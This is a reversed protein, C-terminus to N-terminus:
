PVSQGNRQRPHDSVTGWSMVEDDRMRMPQLNFYVEGEPPIDPFDHILIGPQNIALQKPITADPRAIFSGWHSYPQSSNNCVAWMRNDSCRTPVERTNLTDLRSQGKDRANYM